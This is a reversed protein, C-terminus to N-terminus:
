LELYTFDAKSKGYTEKIFFTILIGVSLTGLVIWFVKEYHIFQLTEGKAYYDYMFSLIPANIAILSTIVANNLSLALALDNKKFQEAMIVFGISQGAASLGLVFFFVMIFIENQAYIIAVFAAVSLIASLKM